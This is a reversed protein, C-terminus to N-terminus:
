RVAGHIRYTSIGCISLREFQRDIFQSINQRLDELDAYEKVEVEERKLTRVFSECNANTQANLHAADCRQSDVNGLLGDRGDRQVLLFEFEDRVTLVPSLVPDPELVLFIAVQMGQRHTPGVDTRDIRENSYRRPSRLKSHRVQDFQRLLNVSEVLLWRMMPNGQKSISYTHQKDGSSREQPNLGLYSVVQKSRQFRAMPGLTLVFALATVPGVGPHTMLRVADARSEAEQQVARDLEEIVPNLQDLM